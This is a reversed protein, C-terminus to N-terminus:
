KVSLFEVRPVLRHIAREFAEVSLALKRRKAFDQVPEVTQSLTNMLYSSIDAAAIGAPVSVQVVLLHDKRFFSGTRIGDYDPSTYPGPIDFTLDVRLDDSKPLALLEDSLNGLHRIAERMRRNDRSDGGVRMSFYVLKPPRDDPPLRLNTM